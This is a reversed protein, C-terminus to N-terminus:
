SVQRAQELLVELRQQEQRAQRITEQCVRIKTDLEAKLERALDHMEVQWRSIDDPADLLRSANERPGRAARHSTGRGGRQRRWVMRLLVMTMLAVGAAFMWNEALQDSSPM